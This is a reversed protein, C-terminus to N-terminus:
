LNLFASTDDNMLIRNESNIKDSPFGKDFNYGKGASEDVLVTLIGRLVSSGRGRERLGRRDFRGGVGLFGHRGRRRRLGFFGRLLRGGRGPFVGRWDDGGIGEFDIGPGPGYPDHKSWLFLVLSLVRRGHLGGSCKPSTYGPPPM